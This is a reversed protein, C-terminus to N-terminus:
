YREHKHPGAAFTLQLLVRHDPDGHVAQHYNYELRCRVWPSQWWTVYPALQWEWHDFDSFHNEAVFEQVLDGRFGLAWRRSIKGEVSSYGGVWQLATGDPLEKRIYLGETRWTLYHYRARNPPEWNLTLDFGAVLSLRTPEDHTGTVAADEHEHAHEEEEAHEEEAEADPEPAGRVNNFGVMGTLGLELYVSESLDWYNGLRGLAAPLSFYDGAFLNENRGNTVELTFDLSHAWLRPLQARMSLGAQNLGGPGFTRLLMLPFDFQDLGHKHWRNVVGLQQRFKGLTLQVGPLLSTWTAYAEGLHVGGPEVEVAIKTFSFPDLPTQLHIGLNRFFFGSRGAQGYEKGDQSLVQAYADGTVSLEPNLGQLSRQGSRFTKGADLPVPEDEGEQAVQAQLRMVELELEQLRVELDPTAPEATQASAAGAGAFLFLLLGLSRIRPLPFM